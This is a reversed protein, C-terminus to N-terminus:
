APAAAASVPSSNTDSDILRCMRPSAQSGRRAAGVSTSTRSMSIRQYRAASSCVVDGTM